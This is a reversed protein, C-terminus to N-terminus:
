RSTGGTTPVQLGGAGPTSGPEPTPVNGVSFTGRVCLPSGCVPAPAPTTPTTLLLTGGILLAGTAGAAAASKPRTIRM